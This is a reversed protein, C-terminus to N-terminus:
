QPLCASTSGYLGNAGGVPGAGFGVRGDGFSFCPARSFDGGVEPRFKDGPCDAFLNEWAQLRKPHTYLVSGTMFSSAGFEITNSEIVEHARRTSRGAHRKGFQWLAILIDGKQQQEIKRLFQVTREVQQLHEATMESARYNYFKGGRSESILDFLMLLARIYREKPNKVTKFHRAAVADISPWAALGEMGMDEPLKLTPMVKEIFKVTPGLQLSFAKALAEAQELIPRLVHDAPYGYSSKVEEAAFRNPVALSKIATLNTTRLEDRRGLVRQTANRDLGFTKIAEEVADGASKRLDDIQRRTPTISSTSMTIVRGKTLIARIM